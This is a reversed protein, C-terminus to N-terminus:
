RCRGRKRAPTLAALRGQDKGLPAIFLHAMLKFARCPQQCCGPSLLVCAVVFSLSKAEHQLCRGLVGRAPAAVGRPAIEMGSSRSPPSSPAAAGEDRPGQMGEGRPACCCCCRSGARVGRPRPPRELLWPSLHTSNDGRPTASQSRTPQMVCPPLTFWVLM